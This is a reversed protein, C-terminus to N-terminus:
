SRARRKLWTTFSKAQGKKHRQKIPFISLIQVPGEVFMQKENWWRGMHDTITQPWDIQDFHARVAFMTDFRVNSAVEAHSLDADASYTYFMGLDIVDGLQLEKLAPTTKMGRYLVVYGDSDFLSELFDTHLNLLKKRFTKSTYRKRKEYWDEPVLMEPQQDLLEGMPWAKMFGSKLIKERDASTLHFRM